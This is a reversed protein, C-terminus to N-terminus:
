RHTVIVEASQPFGEPLALQKSGVDFKLAEERARTVIGAIRFKTGHPTFEDGFVVKTSFRGGEVTAVPAQCWWPQGPIDAQVFIVPWGGSEIRGTLEERMGVTAGGTPSEIVLSPQRVAAASAVRSTAVLKERKGVTPEQKPNESLPSPQRVEAGGSAVSPDNNTPVTQEQSAPIEDTSSWYRMIPVAILSVVGVSVVTLVRITKSGRGALRSRLSDRQPKSSGVGARVRPLAAEVPTGGNPVAAPVTTGGKPAIEPVITGGNPVRERVPASASVTPASPGPPANKPRLLSRLAAAAEDATQYRDDPNTAMLKEISQVLRPPLGPRVESLPVAQGTIRGVICDMSSEGKFPLQGSLLHYMTCGLSYLDSRGDLKVMRAQEPSIYDPTGVAIGATTLEAPLDEKELLTGLGFDLVKLKKSQTLLLNSPKVDRHLVGRAHAHALGEAAQSGYYVVDAPPLAGKSKLLDELTMGAMYEMAIFHCDAVRDADFARIVNPHDLRGVLQMERQFRALSRTSNSVYRSDLIKLAVVRGMMRHRAKYVKGMTGKGLFELIIYSGFMLGQPKGKLIQRAQFDTLVGDTVLRSALEAPESPYEGESMSAELKELQRESLVSSSRIAQLFVSVADTTTNPENPPVM